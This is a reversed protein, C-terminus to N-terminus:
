STQEQDAAESDEFEDEEFEGTPNGAQGSNRKRRRITELTGQVILLMGVGYTLMVIQSQGTFRNEANLGIGLVVDSAMVLLAGIVTLLARKEGLKDFAQASMGTSAALTMGFLILPFFLSQPTTSTIVDILVVTVAFILFMVPLNPLTNLNNLDRIRLYHKILLAHMVLFAGMGLLFFLGSDGPAIALMVDGIFAFLIGIFLFGAWRLGPRSVSSWLYLALCPMLLAKASFEIAREQISIAVVDILLLLGFAILFATSKHKGFDMNKWVEVGEPWIGM